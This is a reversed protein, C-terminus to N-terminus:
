LDEGERPDGRLDRVYAAFVVPGDAYARALRNEGYDYGFAFRQGDAGYMAIWWEAEAAHAAIEEELDVGNALTTCSDDYSCATGGVFRDIHTAEHVLLAALVDPEGADVLDRDARIYSRSWRGTISRVAYAYGSNYPIEEVGVCVGEDLLLAFLRRGEDTRRMLNMAAKLRDFDGESTGKCVPLRPADPVEAFQPEEEVVGMAVEGAAIAVTRWPRLEAALVLTAGHRVGVLAGLGLALVALVAVTGLLLAWARSELPAPHTPTADSVM